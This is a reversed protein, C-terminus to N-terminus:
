QLLGKIGMSSCPNRAKLILGAHLIEFNGLGHFYMLSPKKLAGALIKM